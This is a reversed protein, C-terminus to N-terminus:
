IFGSALPPFMAFSWKMGGLRLMCLLWRCESVSVKDSTVHHEGIHWHRTCGQKWHATYHLYFQVIIRLKRRSFFLSLFGQMCADLCWKSGSVAPDATSSVCWIMVIASSDFVVVFEEFEEVGRGYQRSTLDLERASQLWWWPLYVGSLLSPRAEHGCRDSGWAM